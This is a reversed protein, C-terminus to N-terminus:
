LLTSYCLLCSIEISLIIDYSQLRCSQYRPACTLYYFIPHNRFLLCIRLIWDCWFILPNRHIVSIREYRFCPCNTFMILMRIYSRSSHLYCSTCFDCLQTLKILLYDITIIRKSTLDMLSKKNNNNIYCHLHDQRSYLIIQACSLVLGNM